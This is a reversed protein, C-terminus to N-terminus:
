APQGPPVPLRHAARGARERVDRRLGARRRAFPHDMDALMQRAAPRIDLEAPTVGLAQMLRWANAKTVDGTGFGPMTYALIDSRPRGLRDFARAAVILAQTSDLGGSVGIVVRRIGASRLRQTLGSVQINYAEYCDQELRQPDAPVFPFREVRRRLGSM